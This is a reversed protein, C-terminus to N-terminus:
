LNNRVCIFLQEYTGFDYYDEPIVSDVKVERLIGVLVM